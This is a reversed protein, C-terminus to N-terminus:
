PFRASYDLSTSSCRRRGPLIGQARQEWPVPPPRLVVAAFTPFAEFRLIQLFTNSFARSTEASLKSCARSTALSLGASIIGPDLTSIRSSAPGQRNSKEGHVLLCHSDRRARLPRATVDAGAASGTL